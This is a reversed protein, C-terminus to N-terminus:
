YTRRWHLTTRTLIWSCSTNELIRGSHLRNGERAFVELCGPHVGSLIVIPNGNDIAVILDGTFTAGIDAQGTGLTRAESADVMKVNQIDTFGEAHLLTEAVYQPAYCLVPINIDFILRIASIEPPPEAMVPGSQIGLIGAGGAVALGSLFRRRPWPHISQIDM